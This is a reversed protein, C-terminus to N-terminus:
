TAREKANHNHNTSVDVIRRYQWEVVLGETAKTAETAAQEDNVNVASVFESAFLPTYRCWVTHECEAFLAAFL